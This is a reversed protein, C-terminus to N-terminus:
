KVSAEKKKSGTVKHEKAHMSKLRSRRRSRARRATETTREVVASANDYHDFMNEPLDGIMHAVISEITVLGRYEEFSNIVVYTHQRTRIFAQLAEQLTADEHLYMVERRMCASVPKSSGNSVDHVDWLDLFGIIKEDSGPDAVPFQTQGTKYLEDLLLPGVLEDSSLQRISKKPLYIDDVSTGASELMKIAMTLESNPPESQEDEGRVALVRIIEQTDDLRLTNRVISPEIFRGVPKLVPYLTQILEHIIPSVRIAAKEFGGNPRRGVRMAVLLIIFLSTVTAAFGGVPGLIRLWGFYLAALEILGVLFVLAFYYPYQAAVTYLVSSGKDGQRGRKRLSDISAHRFVMSVGATLFLMVSGIALCVFATIM